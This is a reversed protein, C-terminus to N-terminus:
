PASCRSSEWPMRMAARRRATRTRPGAATSAARCRASPAPGNRGRGRVRHPPEHSVIGLHTGQCRHALLRGGTVRQRWGGRRPEVDAQALPHALRVVPVLEDPEGEDAGGPVDDVERHEGEADMHEPDVVAHRRRDGEEHRDGVVEDPVALPRELGVVAVGPELGRAEEDHRREREAEVEGHELQEDDDAPMASTGACAIAIAAAVGSFKTPLLSQLKRVHSPGRRQHGRTREDEDCRGRRLGWPRHRDVGVRERARRRQVLRRGAAHAAGVLDDRDGAPDRLDARGDAVVRAAM